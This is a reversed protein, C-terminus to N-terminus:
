MVKVARNEGEAPPFSIWSSLQEKLYKLLFCKPFSCSAFRKMELSCLACLGCVLFYCWWFRCKPAKQFKVDIPLFQSRAFKIEASSILLIIVMLLLPLPFWCCGRGLQLLCAWYPPVRAASPGWWCVSCGQTSATAPIKSGSSWPFCVLSLCLM